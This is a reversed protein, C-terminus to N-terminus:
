SEPWGDLIATREDTTLHGTTSDAAMLATLAATNTKEFTQAAEYRSFAFKVAGDSSTKTAEMIATFRAMAQAQTSSNVSMLCAVAHDQFATKSLTLPASISGPATYTQYVVAGSGTTIRVPDGDTPTGAVVSPVDSLSTPLHSVKVIDTM